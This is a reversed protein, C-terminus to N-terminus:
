KGGTRPERILSINYLEEGDKAPLDTLLSAIRSVSQLNYPKQQYQQLELIVNGFLERKGFNILQQGASNTIFNLNGDDVFLLDQLHVGIYPVCPPDVTHLNTRYDKYSFASNM